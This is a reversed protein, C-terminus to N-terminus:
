AMCGRGGLSAHCYRMPQKLTQKPCHCIEARQEAVCLPNEEIEAIGPQTDSLWTLNSKSPHPLLILSRLLQLYARPLYGQDSGIVAQVPLWAPGQRAPCEVTTRGKERCAQPDARTHSPQHALQTGASGPLYVDGQLAEPWGRAKAEETRNPLLGHFATPSPLPQSCTNPYHSISLANSLTLTFTM